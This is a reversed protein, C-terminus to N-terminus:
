AHVRLAFRWPAEASLVGFFVRGDHSVNCLVFIRVDTRWWRVVALQSHLCLQKKESRFMSNAGGSVVSYFSFWRSLEEM